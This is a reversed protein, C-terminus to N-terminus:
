TYKFPPTDSIFMADFMMEFMCMFVIREEWEGEKEKGAMKKLRGGRKVFRDM